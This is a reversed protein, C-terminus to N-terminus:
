GNSTGMPEYQPAIERERQEKVSWPTARGELSDALGELHAHWGIRVGGGSGNPDVNSHTLTLDCGETTPSLEFLVSTDLGDLHWTWALARPPELRTIKMETSYGNPYTFRFSGSHRLDVQADGFWDALREPTTLAAWVRNVTARYSRRFVVQM